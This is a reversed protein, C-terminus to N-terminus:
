SGEGGGLLFPLAREFRRGWSAENHAGDPDEFWRLDVGSRYGKELLLDRLRGADSVPGEGELLGIDVYLRGPVFPAARVFSLVASDAFWISPSLIAAFGFARPERFFAYVSILGGMSSGAIGTDAPDPRTRFQADIMPKLRGTLFALYQEGQGGRGRADSIPSYEELRAEGAHAVGVVIAEASTALADLAAALGWDGAYSTTADFLNQGDQMYIVRFRRTGSAYSPPLYVVVDRRNGLEPSAVSKLRVLTGARARQKPILRRLNALWSSL